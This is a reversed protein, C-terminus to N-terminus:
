AVDEEIPKCWDHVADAYGWCGQPAWNYLWMVFAHLRTKNKSDARSCAERLDNNIVASLFHGPPVGEEVYRILYGHMHLPVDYEQLKQIAQESLNGRGITQQARNM